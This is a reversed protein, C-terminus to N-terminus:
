AAVARHTMTLALRGIGSFIMSIGVLTGVVWLAASPWSMYIMAALVIAVIGAVLLWGSGVLPRLQVSLLIELAGSIVLYFALAMTLSALGMLPRSLLFVGIAGYVIAILIEGIVTRATHGSWAFVLHLVGSFILMWGVILTVTVGALVPAGIALLGALIMLVSLVISWMAMSRSTTSLEAM